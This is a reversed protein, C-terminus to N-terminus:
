LLNNKKRYFLCYAMPSIIDNENKIIEVNSDNYHVWENSANKVYSTYHGGLISGIHNCVGYLEYKYQNANYGRVYKKLNLSDSTPFTVLQNIKRGGDQSFRKLTIVLIQPFSWIIIKKRINEKIGTKENLWANENELVEEQTYLDFCDYLSIPSTDQQIPIPLDLIFFNEPNNKHITTGDMSSIQSVYIGYFLEMILSYEKSYVDQLMKYCEIALHDTENTTHGTIKMQIGRSLSNHMCDIIFLLFESLDNQAWGTFLERNKEKALRHVNYVFKNPSVVGNNSWMVEHLELWEKIVSYDILDHKIIKLCKRSNFIEILEYTHNLVQMCSNLFCTNGLNVLGTYGKNKYKEIMTKTLDM